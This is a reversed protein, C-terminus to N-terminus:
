FYERRCKSAKNLFSLIKIKMCLLSILSGSFVDYHNCRVLEEESEVELDSLNNVLKVIENDRLFKRTM